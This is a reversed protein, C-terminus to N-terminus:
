ELRRFELRPLRSQERFWEILPERLDDTANVLRDMAQRGFSFLLRLFDPTHTASRPGPYHATHRLLEFVDGLRAGQELLTVAQSALRHQEEAAPGLNALIGMDDPGACEGEAFIVSDLQLEVLRREPQPRRMRGAGIGGGVFGVPGPEPPLVDSNDGFAGNPTVVRKSGPLFPHFRLKRPDGPDFQLQALSSLGIVKDSTIRGGQDWRWIFSMAMVAKGSQNLVILSEQPLEEPKTGLPDLWMGALLEHFSPDDRTIFCMGFQPLDRCIV